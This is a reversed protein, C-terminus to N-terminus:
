GNKCQVPLETVYTYVYKQYIYIYIHKISLKLCILSSSAPFNWHCYINMAYRGMCKVYFAKRYM